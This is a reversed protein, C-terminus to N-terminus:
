KLASSALASAAAAVVANLAANGLAGARDILGSIWSRPAQDKRVAAAAELLEQILKTESLDRQGTAVVSVKNGIVTGGGPGSTAVVKMGIVSGTSGPGAVATVKQGIIPSPNQELAKAVNELAAALNDSM